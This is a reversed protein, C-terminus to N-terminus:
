RSNQRVNTEVIKKLKDISLVEGRHVIRHCNACLPILDKHPDVYVESSEEGLPKTHHVEIYGFGRDGYVEGFDFGCAACIYGHIELARKRNKPDREYRTSYFVRRRGETSGEHPSEDPGRSDKTAVSEDILQVEFKDAKGGVKSLRLGLGYEDSEKNAPLYKEITRSFRREWFLRLRSNRVTARSIFAEGRFHFELRKIEDLKEIEFFFAIQRPIGTGNHEICSKDVSKVAVTDTLVRWSYAEVIPSSDESLVGVVYDRLEHEPVHGFDEVVKRRSPRLDRQHWGARPNPHISDFDDRMNKVTNPNVSLRRGIQEHTRTNSGFGLSEYAKKDFKSLYYAIVLALENGKKMRKYCILV